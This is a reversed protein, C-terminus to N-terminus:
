DALSRVLEQGHRRLTDLLCTLHDPRTLPNMLTTRLLSTGDLTTAVLYFEGSEIVRRRLLLQFRNQAAADLNRLLPPLHRFVLINCTPEYPAEFDDAALLLQYLDRTREFTVDVLDEFWQPGFLSWTGWLGIAAARKTCEVTLLGSDFEALEPATPDYLYPAHQDFALFRHSRDRYFLLACLAPMFFMKHADCVVSDAQELGRVLHRHQRSMCAAGGHAADVHLWVDHRQCAAAVDELPDFAGIPTTCAAASVAVIPVGRRRLDGLQEDLRTPDIRRRADLSATLIHDTGLGLIGAARSISYHADAHVVVVAAPDAALVGRKWVGDLCRNRATLLGTLNALSAGSTILGAAGQMDFGLRSGVVDLVAREVATAWPGMEYIAMGQNTVAGLFDFLAALPLSAPVQHGVYHPHHLQHGHALVAAALQGVACAVQDQTQRAAAADTAGALDNLLDSHDGQLMLRRASLVLQEPDNWPLVPGEGGQVHRFHAALLAAMHTAATQLTEPAYAAAIRAYPSAAASPDELPSPM